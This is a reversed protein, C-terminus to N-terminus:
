SFWSKIKAVIRGWLSESPKREENSNTQQAQSVPQRSEETSNTQQAQLMRTKSQQMSSQKAKYACTLPDNGCLISEYFNKLWDIDTQNCFASDIDLEHALQNRMWRVHKLEKYISDWNYVCYRENYPTNEMDQIYASIGEGRAYMERCLKDLRKYQEQFEINLERM